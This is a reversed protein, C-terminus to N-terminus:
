LTYPTCKIIYIQISKSINDVVKIEWDLAVYVVTSEGKSQQSNMIQKIGIERTISFIYHNNGYCRLTQRDYGIIQHQQPHHHSNNYNQTLVQQITTPLSIRTNQLYPAVQKTPIQFPVIFTYKKDSISTILVLQCLACSSPVSQNM